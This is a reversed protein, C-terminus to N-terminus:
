NVKYYNYDGNEKLLAGSKGGCLSRKNERGFTELGWEV